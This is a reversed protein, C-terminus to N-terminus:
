SECPDDGGGGSNTTSNGSPKPKRKPRRKRKIKLAERQEFLFQNYARSARRYIRTTKEWAHGLFAKPTQFDEPHEDPYWTAALHRV